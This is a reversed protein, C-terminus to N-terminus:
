SVQLVSIFYAFLPQPLVKYKEEKELCVRLMRVARAPKVHALIAGYKLAIDIPVLSNYGTGCLSNAHIVSGRDAIYVFGCSRPMMENAKRVDM